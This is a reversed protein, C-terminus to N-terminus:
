VFHSGKGFHPSLSLGARANAHGKMFIRQQEVTGSDRDRKETLELWCDAVLMVDNIRKVLQKPTLNCLKDSKLRDIEEGAVAWARVFVQMKEKETM